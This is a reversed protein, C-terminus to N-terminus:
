LGLHDLTDQHIWSSSYLRCRGMLSVRGHGVDVTLAGGRKSAQWGTVRQRELRVCWYPGLACHASGTAPDENIGVRPAFFRSIFDYEGIGPATLIVGRGPLRALSSFDPEATLVLEPDDYVVLWDTGFFVESFGQPIANVLTLPATEVRRQPQVPFDMCLGENRLVVPLSGHKKTHFTVQRVQHDVFVAYAAALTAHGCLDVETTPTFWRIYYHEPMDEIPTIFATESLNHQAAIQQMLDDSLPQSSQIVAAPNGSFPLSTTFADILDLKM